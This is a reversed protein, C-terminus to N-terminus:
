WFLSGCCYLIINNLPFTMHFEYKLHKKESCQKIEKFSETKLSNRYKCDCATVIIKRSVMHGRKNLITSVVNDASLYCYTFVFIGRLFMLFANDSKNHAASM